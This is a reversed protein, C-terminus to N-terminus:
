GALERSIGDRVARAYLVYKRKITGDRFEITIASM